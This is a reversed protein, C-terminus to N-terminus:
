GSRERAKLLRPLLILLSGYLGLSLVLTAPRGTRVDHLLLKVAGLALLPYVLWALEPQGRRALWALGLALAVLVASRAVAETGADLALRPGLAAGTAGRAAEALSLVAVLALLLRRRWARSCAGRSPPAWRWPGPSGRSSAPRWAPSPM